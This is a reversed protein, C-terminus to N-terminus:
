EKGTKRRVCAAVASQRQNGKVTVEERCQDRIKGMEVESFKKKTQASAPASFCIAVGLFVVSFLRLSMMEVEESLYLAM